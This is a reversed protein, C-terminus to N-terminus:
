SRCPQPHPLRPPGGTSIHKTRASKNAKRGPPLTATLSFLYVDEGNAPKRFRTLYTISSLTSHMGPFLHNRKIGHMLVLFWIRSGIGVSNSLGDVSGYTM